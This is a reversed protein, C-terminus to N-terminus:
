KLSSANLHVWESGKSLAKRISDTKKGIVEAHAPNEALPKRVIRLGKERALSAPFGVLSFAEHAELIKEVSTERAISVSMDDEDFAATAPRKGEPRKPDDTVHWPPVRRWLIEDDPITTDDAVEPEPM